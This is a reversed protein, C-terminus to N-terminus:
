VSLSAIRALRGKPRWRESVDKWCHGFACTHQPLCHTHATCTNVCPQHYTCASCQCCNSLPHGPQQLCFTQLTTHGGTLISRIFHSFVTSWNCYNLVTRSEITFINCRTVICLCYYNDHITWAWTKGLIQRKSWSCNWDKVITWKLIGPRSRQGFSTLSTCSRWLFRWKPTSHNREKGPNLSTENQNRNSFENRDVLHYIPGAKRTFYVEPELNVKVTCSKNCKRPGVPRHLWVTQPPFKRDEGFCSCISISFISHDFNMSFTDASVQLLSFFSNKCRPCTKGRRRPNSYKCNM